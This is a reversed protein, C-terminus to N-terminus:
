DRFQLSMVQIQERLAKHRGRLENVRKAELTFPLLSSDAIQELPGDDSELLDVHHELAEGLQQLARYVCAGWDRGGCVLPKNLCWRLRSVAFELASHSTAIM